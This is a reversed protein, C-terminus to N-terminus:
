RGRAGGPLPDAGPELDPRVGALTEGLMLATGSPADRKGAHHREDIVAAYGPGLLEGAERLLRALVAIGPSMNRAHFLPIRRAAARLAEVGSEEHGTVGCVLPTGTAVAVALVDATATPLTFDVAVDATALVAELDTDPSIDAGAASVLQALEHDGAPDSRRVWLGGLRLGAGGDEALVRLIERGMRGAGLVSVSM